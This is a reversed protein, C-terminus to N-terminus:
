TDILGEWRQAVTLAQRWRPYEGWLSKPDILGESTAATLLTSPNDEVNATSISLDSSGFM